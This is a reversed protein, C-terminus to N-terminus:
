GVCHHQEAAGHFLDAPPLAKVRAEHATRAQGVHQGTAPVQMLREGVAAAGIDEHRPGRPLAERREAAGIQAAEELVRAGCGGEGRRGEVAVLAVARVPERGVAGGPAV